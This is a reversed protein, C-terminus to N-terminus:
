RMGTTSRDPEIWPQGDPRRLDTITCGGSSITVDAVRWFDRGATSSSTPRLTVPGFTERPTTTSGGCYIRVTVRTAVGSAWAHVAVRYTGPQPRMININEPGFGNTDDIDLRPNDAPGPAGWELVAGGDCNRFHCDDHGEWETGTPNLLHLDMDTGDTDWFMEVRLGDVNGASVRTTCSGRLGDDDTATVVLDYNGAIDPTFTTMPSNSPSPPGAASGPPRTDVRWSWAVITGDDVASATIAVPTLPTTDIRSPCSVHPPSPLATVRVECSASLGEVDTATFRLLYEGRRDPTFVTMESSPPMPSATSGSPRTIVEWRRTVIGVDDTARAALRAPQRTQVSVMTPDCAVMPPGTVRVVVECSGSAMDADWVTLRLRYTGRVDSRFQVLPGDSGVLEVMAGPPQEVLEWLYLVVGEDDFADGTVLLPVGAPTFLDDEPCIAVPPGVVAQVTVECSASAGSADQAEFRLVYSGQVDPTLTAVRRDPGTVLSPSSGSPLSVLRWSQAVIPTPAMAEATLMIPRRPSTYQTSRGCDVVLVGGDGGDPPGADTGADPLSADASPAPVSLTSRAGCALLLFAPISAFCFFLFRRM